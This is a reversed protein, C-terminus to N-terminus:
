YSQEYNEKLSEGQQSEGFSDVLKRGQFVAERRSVCAYDVHGHYCNNTM